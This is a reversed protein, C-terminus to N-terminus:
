KKVKPIKDGCDDTWVTSMLLSTLSNIIKVYQLFYSFSVITFCDHVTQVEPDQGDEMSEVDDKLHPEFEAHAEGQGGQTMGSSEM